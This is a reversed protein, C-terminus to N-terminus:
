RKILIVRGVEMNKPDLDSNIELIEKWRKGDSLLNAAIKFLTDHQRIKYEVICGNGQKKNFPVIYKRLNDLGRKLYSQPDHDLGHELVKGPGVNYALILKKLDDGFIPKFYNEIMVGSLEIAFADDFRLRKVLAVDDLKYDTWKDVVWRATRFQMQMVGFCHLQWDKFHDDGYRGWRGVVTENMMIIQLLEPHNLKRGEQYALNLLEIEGRNWGASASTVAITLIIITIYLTKM